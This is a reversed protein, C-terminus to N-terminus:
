ASSVKKTQRIRELASRCIPHPIGQLGMVISDFTSGDAHNFEGALVQRAVHLWPLCVPSLSARQAELWDLVGRKHERLLAAFEPPCSDGFVLIQDGGPELRLRLKIAELHIERISM